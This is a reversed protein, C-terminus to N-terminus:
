STCDWPKGSCVKLTESDPFWHFIGHGGYWHTWWCRSWRCLASSSIFLVLYVQAFSNQPYSTLRFSFQLATSLPFTHSFSHFHTLPLSYCILRKIVPRSETNLQFTTQIPLKWTVCYLSDMHLGVATQLLLCLCLSFASFIFRSRAPGWDLLASFQSNSGPGPSVRKLMNAKLHQLTCRPCSSVPPFWSLVWQKTSPWCKFLWLWLAQETWITISSLVTTLTSDKTRDLGLLGAGAKEEKLYDSNCSM